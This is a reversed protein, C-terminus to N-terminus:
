DFLGEGEAPNYPEHDLVRVIEHEARLGAKTRYQRSSLMVRLTDGSGFREVGKHVREMFPEDTIKAALNNGGDTFRWMAGGDLVVTKVVLYRETTSELIEEEDSYHRFYRAENENAAAITEGDAILKIGDRKGVVPDRVLKELSRGADGQFVFHVTAGNFNNIVGHNNEVQVSGDGQRVIKKPQEGELHKFLDFVDKILDVYASWQPAVFAAAQSVSLFLGFIDSGESYSEVRVDLESESGYTTVNAAGLFESAGRLITAAEAADIGPLKRDGVYHLTLKQEM